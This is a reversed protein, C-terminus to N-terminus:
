GGQIEEPVVCVMVLADEGNDSYYGHSIAVTRFGVKRFLDIAAHNSTRTELSIRRCERERAEAFVQRILRWGVKRRRFERAVAVNALHLRPGVPWLIAYGFIEDDQSAVLTLSEESAAIERMFMDATWAMAFAQREIEVVREVDDVRMHRIRIRDSRNPVVQSRM